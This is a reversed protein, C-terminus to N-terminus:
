NVLVHLNMVGTVGVIDRYRGNQFNMIKEGLGDLALYVQMNRNIQINMLDKGM